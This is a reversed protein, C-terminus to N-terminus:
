RGGPKNQYVRVYDVEFKIPFRTLSPDGGNEGIALNLLLFHPQLFPHSGDPNVAQSLLTTNMLQDDLFLNISDKTWDMRWTHFKNYWGSDRSTFDSLPKRVTNWKATGPQSTGWALNALLTPVMNIRYFEMIDVEGNDPWNGTLGLTWIAPWCGKSTDIRARIEFRGYQWQKLGRTQISASTYDAYQRKRRWDTNGEQYDTNKVKQREGIIILLGNSCVANEPQYWQLERNRVFGSEYVWNSPDPKGNTNFEDNWILTMGPINGPSTFDPKYPDAKQAWASCSFIILLLICAPEKCFMTDSKLNLM